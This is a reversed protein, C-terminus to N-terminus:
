AKAGPTFGKCIMMLLPMSQSKPFTQRAYVQAATREFLAVMQTVTVIRAHHFVLRGPIRLM